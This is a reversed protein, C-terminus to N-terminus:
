RNYGVVFCAGGPSDGNNACVTSAENGNGACSDTAGSGAPNCHAGMTEVLQFDVIEPKEYEM